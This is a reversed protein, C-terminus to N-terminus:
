YRTLSHAPVRSQKSSIDEANKNTWLIVMNVLVLLPLDPSDILRIQDNHSNFYHEFIGDADPYSVNARQQLSVILKNRNEQSIEFYHPVGATYM